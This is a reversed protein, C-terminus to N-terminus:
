VAAMWDMHFSSAGRICHLLSWDSNQGHEINEEDKNTGGHEGSERAIRQREIPKLGAMNSTENRTASASAM